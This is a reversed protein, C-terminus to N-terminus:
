VTADHLLDVLEDRVVHHHPLAAHGVHPFHFHWQRVVRKWHHGAGSWHAWHLHAPHEGHHLHTAVLLSAVVGIWAPELMWGPGDGIFPRPLNRIRLAAFRRRQFVLADFHCNAFGGTRASVM